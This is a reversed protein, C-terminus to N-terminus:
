EEEYEIKIALSVSYVGSEDDNSNSISKGLVHVNLTNGTEWAATIKEYFQRLRDAYLSALSELYYKDTAVQEHSKERFYVGLLLAMGRTGGGGFFLADDSQGARNAALCPYRPEERINSEKYLKFNPFLGDSGVEAAVATYFKEFVENEKDM